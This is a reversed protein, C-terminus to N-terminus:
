GAHKEILRSLRPIGAEVNKKANPRLSEYSKKVMGSARKAREDTISLLADAVRSSNQQMYSATPVSKSKAEQYIPELAEAFKPLLGEVVEKIFGPKVGKVAAFGAKIALGSFGSKDGVEQDILTLCDAVVAPKKNPDNLADALAPM